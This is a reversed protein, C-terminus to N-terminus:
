HAAVLQEAVPSLRYRMGSEASPSRTLPGTVQVEIDTGAVGVGKTMVASM